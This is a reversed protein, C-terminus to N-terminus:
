SLAHHEEATPGDEDSLIELAMTQGNRLDRVTALEKARDVADSENVFYSRRVTAELEEFLGKRRAMTQYRREVAILSRTMEFHMPDDGCLEKLLKIDDAGLALQDGLPKGPYPMGTEDEYIQPVRDEIEHKDFVWIRRIEELEEITILELDETGEPGLERVEGQARLLDRLWEARAEQTYPGHVARGNFVTVGGRKRRFERRQRDREGRIRANRGRDNEEARARDEDPAQLYPDEGSGDWGGDLKDRLSLLPAMWEHDESNAVMASMSKDQDVLTCTWCGFRSDGCSPTTTDVVLPCESDESAGQYMTLLDKNSYGWANKVQMLFMWVDDNSWAEIPSYVLSNPLSGNPSLRDRVRGKEHLEMTRARAVSESKRTGLVLIAEGHNDVVRKIFSNSPRIKLRETCWRFKPRPAPYGQGILNVWFTDKIEPTLRNPQVPLDQVEAAAAMKELSKSVWAAVVPNEVLTDTSIVYVPKRRAQPALKSLALWVLQLVATSDKGGSYGVVWPVEDACYLECIEGTLEDIVEQMPRGDFPRRRTTITLGLDVSM